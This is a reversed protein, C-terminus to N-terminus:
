AQSDRSCLYMGTEMIGEQCSLDRRTCLLARDCVDSLGPIAAGEHGGAGCMDQEQPSILAQHGGAGVSAGAAGPPVGWWNAQQGGLLWAQVNAALVSLLLLVSPPLSPPSLTRGADVPNRDVVWSM